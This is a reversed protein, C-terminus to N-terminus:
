KKEATEPAFIKENKKVETRYKRAINNRIKLLNEFSGKGFKTRDKALVALIDDYTCISSNFRLMLDHRHLVEMGEHTTSAIIQTYVAMDHLAGKMKLM